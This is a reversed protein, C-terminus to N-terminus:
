RNEIRLRDEFEARDPFGWDAWKKLDSLRWFKRGGLSYGRPVKGSADHTRWTRLSLGPFVCAVIHAADVGLPETQNVTRPQKAKM